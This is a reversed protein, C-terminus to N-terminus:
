AHEEVVTVLALEAFYLVFVIAVELIRWITFGQEVYDSLGILTIQDQDDLPPAIRWGLELHDLLGRDLVDVTLLGGDHVRGRVRLYRKVIAKVVEHDFLGKRAVVLPIAITAFIVDNCGFLHLDVPRWLDQDDVELSERM